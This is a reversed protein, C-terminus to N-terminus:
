SRAEIARLSSRLGKTAFSKGLLPLLAGLLHGKVGIGDRVLVLRVTMGGGAAPTLVYRHGSAGGWANSDTTTLM